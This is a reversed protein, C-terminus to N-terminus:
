MNRASNHEDDDDHPLFQIICCRTDDYRCTATGHVPRDGSPTVVGTATYYLKSRRVIILVVTSSVHVPM